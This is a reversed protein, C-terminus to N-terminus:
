VEEKEKMLFYQEGSHLCMRNRYSTSKKYHSWATPLAQAVGKFQCVVHPTHCGSYNNASMSNKCNNAVIGQFLIVLAKRYHVKEICIESVFNISFLRYRSHEMLLVIPHRSPLNNEQQAPFKNFTAYCQFAHSIFLLSM